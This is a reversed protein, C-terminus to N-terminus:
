NAICRMTGTELAVLYKKRLVCIYIYVSAQKKQMANSIEHVLIFPKNKMM